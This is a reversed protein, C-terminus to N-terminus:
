ESPLVSSSKNPGGSRFRHGLIIISFCFEIELEARPRVSLRHARRPLPFIETIPHRNFLSSSRIPDSHNLLKINTIIFISSDAEIGRSSALPRTIISFNGYGSLSFFLSLYNIMFHCQLAVQRIKVRMKLLMCRTM